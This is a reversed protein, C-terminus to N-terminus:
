MLVATYEILYTKRREKSMKQPKRGKHKWVKRGKKKIKGPKVNFFSWQKEKVVICTAFWWSKTLLPTAVYPKKIVRTQLM